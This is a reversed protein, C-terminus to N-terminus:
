GDPLIIRGGGLPIYEPLRFNSVQFSAGSLDSGSLDDRTLNIERLEARDLFVGRLRVGPFDREGAAYRQLLEEADM